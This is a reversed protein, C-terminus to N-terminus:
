ESFLGGKSKKGIVRLERQYRKIVLELCETETLWQFHKRFGLADRWWNTSDMSDFGGLHTYRRAAFGHVHLHDPIRDLTRKVWDTRDGGRALGGVGIWKGRKEAIPILDRLLEPPDAPHITPFGFREYNKLSRKWNGAIDDLGACAVSIKEWEQAWAIYKSLDVQEGSALESFAGSDVMISAWSTYFNMVPSRYTTFSLLVCQGALSHCQSSSMPSSFYMAPMM